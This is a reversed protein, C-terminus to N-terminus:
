FNRYELISKRWQRVISFNNKFSKLSSNDLSESIYYGWFQRDRYLSTRKM